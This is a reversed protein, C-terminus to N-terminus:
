AKKLNCDSSSVRTVGDHGKFNVQTMNKANWVVIMGVVTNKQWFPWVAISCYELCEISMGYEELGLAGFM